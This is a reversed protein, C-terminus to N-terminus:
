RTSVNGYRRNIYIPFQKEQEPWIFFYVSSKTQLATGSDQGVASKPKSAQAKDMKRRMSGLFHLIQPAYAQTWLASPRTGKGSKAKEKGQSRTSRHDTSIFVVPQIAAFNGSQWHYSEQVLRIGPQSTDKGGVSPSSALLSTSCQVGNALIVHFAEPSMKM